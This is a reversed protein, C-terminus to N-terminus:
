TEAQKKEEPKQEALLEDYDRGERACRARCVQGYAIDAKANFDDIFEQVEPLRYLKLHTSQPKGDKGTMPRRPM